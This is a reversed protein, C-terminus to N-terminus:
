GLVEKVKTALSEPSFPKQMYAMGAEVGHGVLDDASYGSAFMVKIGPRTALLRDALQRGNMEPMIVDTLLLDITGSHGAAVDLAARGNPADLVKYGHLELVDRFLERLQASDEVVLVTGGGHPTSATAAVPQPEPSAATTEPLHVRFTTGVGVTSSVSIFGSSQQVIGYVTALGLGTGKGVEKTTFFPEFIHAITEADMGTGTDTVALTAFQGPVAGPLAPVSSEDFRVTGTAITLTGGHAMADRSNVALNMLVQDIQGADALVLPIDSGLQTVLSVDDGLLPKLMREARRVIMNLDLVRPELVQRRSFALLQRTLGSAGEAAHRIELIEAREPLEPPLKRFLLDCYGIVVGLLNNFDHALGGALRGIAEMKQAQRLQDELRKRESIDYALMLLCPRGSLEIREISALVHRRAGSATRCELELDRVTGHAGLADLMRSRAAADRWVGLEITTKGQVQDRSRGLLTLFADNADLYRGEDLTTIVIGVPSSRFIRSFREESQRLEEEARRREIGVALQDAIASLSEVVFSPLPRRSFVGLVGVTREGVLLPCGAFTAIHNREVWAADPIPLPDTVTVHVPRRQRVINGILPDELSVMAYADALAPSLGTAAQLELGRASESLTWICAGIVDLHRVLAASCRVLTARLAAVGTLAVGLDSSLVALRTRELVVEQARHRERRVEADRLEREIAPVLRKLKDKLVYDSAGAKMAAVAVDEGITGSVFIFPVDLGREKVLNLAATGSFQPMSYDSIVIDWVGGDLAEQMAEPTDVRRHTVDYGATGLQRVLLRADDASDEVLLVRLPTGM